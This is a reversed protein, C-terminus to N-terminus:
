EPESERVRGTMGMVWHPTVRSHPHTALIPHSHCFKQWGWGVIAVCRWEGVGMGSDGCVGLQYPFALTQCYCSPRLLGPFATADWVM